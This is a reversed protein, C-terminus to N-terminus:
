CQSQVWPVEMRSRSWVLMNSRQAFGISNELGGGGEGKNCLSLLSLKNSFSNAARHLPTEVTLKGCPVTQQRALMKLHESAQEPQESLLYVGTWDGVSKGGNFFLDTQCDACMGSAKHALPSEDALLRLQENELVEGTRRSAADELNDPTQLM